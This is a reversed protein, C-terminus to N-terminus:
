ASGGRACPRALASRRRRVHRRRAPQRAADGRSRDRDRRGGGRRGQATRGHRVADLAVHRPRAVHRARAGRAARSRAARRHARHRELRDAARRRGPTYPRIQALESGEGLLRSRYDGALLGEMRRASPSRRARRAAAGSDPGPGAPRRQAGACLSLGRTTRALDIQPLPVAALVRDLIADASVEEALAQYSLVLRHRMADKALARLDDVIVYDRGHMLALARAPSCSASRGARARASRSTSRSSPCATRRRSRADRRRAHGRLEVLGPDVYVDFVARQLDRLDDLTLTERLEPPAELQRQM